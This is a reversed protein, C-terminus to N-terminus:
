YSMGDYIAFVNDSMNQVPLPAEYGRSNWDPNEASRRLWEDDLSSDYQDAIPDGRHETTNRGWGDGTGYTINENDMLANLDGERWGLRDAAQQQLEDISLDGEYEGNMYDVIDGLGASEMAGQALIAEINNVYADPDNQYMEQMNYTGDDGLYYPVDSAAILTALERIAQDDGYAYQYAYEDFNNLLEDTSIASDYHQQFADRDTTWNDGFIEQNGELSYLYFLDNARAENAEDSLVVYENGDADYITETGYIKGYVNQGAPMWAISTWDVDDQSLDYEGLDVGNLMQGNNIADQIQSNVTAIYDNDGEAAVTGDADYYQIEDAGEDAAASGGTFFNVISGWLDTPEGGGGEAQDVQFVPDATGSSGYSSPTSQMTTPTQSSGGDSPESTETGSSATSASETQDEASEDGSTFQIGGQGGGFGGGSGGSQQGGSVGLQNKAEQAMQKTAGLLNGLVASFDIKAM